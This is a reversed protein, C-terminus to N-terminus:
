KVGQLCSSEKPKKVGIGNKQFRLTAQFIPIYPFSIVIGYKSEIFASMEASSVDGIETVARQFAELKTMQAARLTGTWDERLM